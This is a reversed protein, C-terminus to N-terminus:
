LDKEECDGRNEAPFTRESRSSRARKETGQAWPVGEGIRQLREGIRQLRECRQGRQVADCIVVYNYAPRPMRMSAWSRSDRLMHPLLIIGVTASTCPDQRHLDGM